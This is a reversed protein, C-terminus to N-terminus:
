WESGDRCWAPLPEHGTYNGLGSSADDRDLDAIADDLHAVTTEARAAVDHCRYLAAVMAPHERGELREAWALACRRVDDFGERSADLNERDAVDDSLLEDFTGPQANELLHRLGLDAVPGDRYLPGLRHWSQDLGCDRCRGHHRSGLVGLVMLPGDCVRCIQGAM